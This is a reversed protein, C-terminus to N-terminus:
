RDLYELYKEKQEHLESVELVVAKYRIFEKVDSLKVPIVANYCNRNASIAADEYTDYFECEYLNDTYGCENKAWFIPYNDFPKHSAWLVYKELDLDLNQM